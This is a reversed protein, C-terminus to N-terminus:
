AKGTGTKPPAPIDRTQEVYLPCSREHSIEEATVARRECKPCGVWPVRARNGASAELEAIRAAAAQEREVYSQLVDRTANLRHAYSEIGSLAIAEATPSPAPDHGTAIPVIRALRAELQKVRAIYRDLDSVAPGM